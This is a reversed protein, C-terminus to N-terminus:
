KKKPQRGLVLDLMSPELPQSPAMHARRATKARKRSRLHANGKVPWHRAVHSVLQPGPDEADPPFTDSDVFTAAGENSPSVELFYTFCTVAATGALGDEWFQFDNDDAVCIMSIYGEGVVTDGDIYTGSTPIYVVQTNTSSYVGSSSSANAFADSTLGNTIEVGVGLYGNSASFSRAQLLAGNAPTGSL